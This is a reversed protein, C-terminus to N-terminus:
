GDKGGRITTIIGRWKTLLAADPMLGRQSAGEQVAEQSDWTATIEDVWREMWRVFRVYDNKEGGWGQALGTEEEQKTGRAFKKIEDVLPLGGGGYEIFLVLAAALTDRSPTINLHRQWALVLPLQSIPSDGSGERPVVALFLIYDRFHDDQLLVQPYRPRGNDYLQDPSMDHQKLLRRLTLPERHPPLTPLPVAVSDLFGESEFQPPRLNAPARIDVLTKEKGPHLIEQSVVCDWFVQFVLRAPIPNAPNYPNPTRATPIGVLHELELLAGDKTNQEVKLVPEKRIPWLRWGGSRAVGALGASRMNTWSKRAAQILLRITMSDPQTGYLAVSNKFLWWVGDNRGMRIMTVMFDNMAVPNLDIRPFLRQKLRQTPKSRHPITYFTSGYPNTGSLPLTLATTEPHTISTPHISSGNPYMQRHPNPKLPVVLCCENLLGFAKNVKGVRTLTELGAAVFHVDFAYGMAKARTFYQEALLYPSNISNIEGNEQSNREGRVLLGRILQTYLRLTPKVRFHSSARQRSTQSPIAWEFLAVLSQAAVKDVAKAAERFATLWHLQLGRIPSQYRRKSGRKSSRRYAKSAISGLFLRSYSRRRCFRSRHGCRKYQTRIGRKRWRIRDWQSAAKIPAVKRTLSRLFWIASFRERDLNESGSFFGVEKADGVEMAAVQGETELEKLTVLYQEENEVAPHQGAFLKAHEFLHERSPVFGQRVARERLWKTLEVIVFRDKILEDCSEEWLSIRRSSMAKLLTVLPGASGVSRVPNRKMAQLLLNFHRGATRFGKDGVGFDLQLFESTLVHMPLIANFKALNLVSLILLGPQLDKQVHSFNAMVLDMMPGAAHPPIRVKYAVLYLLVWAPIPTRKSNTILLKDQVNPLGYELLHSPPETPETLYGLRSFNLVAREINDVRLLPQWYRVADRTLNSQGLGELIREREIHARASPLRKALLPGLGNSKDIYDILSYVSHNPGEDSSLLQVFRSSKFSHFPSNSTSYLRSSYSLYLPFCARM